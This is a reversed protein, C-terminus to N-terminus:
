AAQAQPQAQTEAQAMAAIVRRRVYFRVTAYQVAFLAIKSALPVVAIFAPWQSPLAVAVALNALATLAMLGAWVYGFAIMLPEGHERAIPPMYRLMWGRKLMVAGVALYIITPKAMLFRPDSTLIGLTGFVVVLGLSAWQLLEVKRKLLRQIAVQAVGVLLAAGTAIRVDVKMALLVAFVITPLFDSILPRAAYLLNNM